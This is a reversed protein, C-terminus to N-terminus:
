KTRSPARELSRVEAVPQGRDQGEDPHLERQVPRVQLPGATGSIGVSEDSSTMTPMRVTVVTVLRTAVRSAPASSTSRRRRRRPATRRTVPWRGEIVRGHGPAASSLFATRRADYLDVAERLADVVYTPVELGRRTEWLLGREVRSIEEAVSGLDDRM